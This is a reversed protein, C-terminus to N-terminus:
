LPACLGAGHAAQDFFSMETADFRTIDEPGQFRVQIIIAAGASCAGRDISGRAVYWCKIPFIEPIHNNTGGEISDGFRDCTFQEANLAQVFKRPSLPLKSSLYSQLRSGLSHDQFPNTEVDNSPGTQEVIQWIAGRPAPLGVCGSCALALLLFLPQRM